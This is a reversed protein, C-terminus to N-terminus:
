CSSGGSVIFGSGFDSERYDVTLPNGHGMYDKVRGDVVIKISDITTIIDKEDFLEDLALGM